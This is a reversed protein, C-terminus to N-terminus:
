DDSLRSMTTWVVKAHKCINLWDPLGPQPELLGAFIQDLLVFDAQNHRGPVQFRSSKTFQAKLVGEKLKIM